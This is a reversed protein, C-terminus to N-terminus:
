EHEYFVIFVVCDFLFNLFLECRAVNLALYSVFFLCRVGIPRSLPSFMVPFYKWRNRTWLSPRVSLSLSLCVSASMKLLTSSWRILIRASRRDDELWVKRIPVCNTNFFVSLQPISYWPDLTIIVERQTTSNEEILQESYLNVRQDGTVHNGMNLVYIYNNTKTLTVIQSICCRYFADISSSCMSWRFSHSLLIIILWHVM